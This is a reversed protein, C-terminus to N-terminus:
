PHGGEAAQSAEFRSRERIWRAQRDVLEAASSEPDPQSAVVRDPGTGGEEGAGGPATPSRRRPVAGDVLRPEGGEDM